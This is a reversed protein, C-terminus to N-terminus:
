SRLSSPLCIKQKGLGKVLAEAQNYSMCQDNLVTGDKDIATWQYIPNNLDRKVEGIKNGTSDKIDYFIVGTFAATM